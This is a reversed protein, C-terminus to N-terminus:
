RPISAVRSLGLPERPRDVRDREDVFTETLGRDLRDVDGGDCWAHRHRFAGNEFRRM